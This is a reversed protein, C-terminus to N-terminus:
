ADSWGLAGRAFRCETLRGQEFRRRESGCRATFGRSSEGWALSYTALNSWGFVAALAGPVWKASLDAGSLDSGLIKARRLDAGSLMADRLDAGSLDAERLDVEILSAG